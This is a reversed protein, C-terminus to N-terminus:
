LRYSVAGDGAFERLRESSLRDVLMEIGDVLWTDHVLGRRRAAIDDIAVQRDYVGLPVRFWWIRGPRHVRLRPATLVLVYNDCRLSYGASAFGAGIACGLWVPWGLALFVPIVAAMVLFVLKAGSREHRALIAGVVPAEPYRREALRLLRGSM